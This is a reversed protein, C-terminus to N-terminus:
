FLSRNDSYDVRVDIVALADRALCDELVAELEPVDVSYGEAGFSRAYAPIDPLGLQTNSSRGFSREMREKILGLGGDNFIVVVLDIGLRKATEMEASSMLFGGDGVVAVVKREPMVLRAAIASPLAAGMPILGNQLLLTNEGYSPYYKAMWILHAGVDSVVIDQRGMQRRLVQVLGKPGGAPRELETCLRARYPRGWDERPAAGQSLSPLIAPLDGRVERELRLDKVRGLGARGMYFVRKEKGRNWYRPQFEAGDYGLLLVTEAEEYCDRVLDSERMGISGLSLPHDFPMSGAALWTCATPLNWAECFTRAEPVARERVVGHGLIALCRGPDLLAKRVVDLDDPEADRRLPASPTMPWSTASRKMVDESVQLMVPGQREETALAFAKRVMMPVEDPLGLDMVGKTLPRFMALLDLVQKEPPDLRAEGAQAVLAVLPYNSLYADAVGTVLNTAGPGLTSLCAGPRGTLRGVTGAMFAAAQEHRTLIFELGGAEIEDMLDLNEEGPIGFIREVGEERLCEVLLRATKM